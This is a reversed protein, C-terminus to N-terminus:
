LLITYFRIILESELHFVMEGPVFNFDIVALHLTMFNVAVGLHWAMTCSLSSVVWDCSLRNLM